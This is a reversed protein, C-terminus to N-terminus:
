NVIETEIENSIQKDIFKQGFIWVLLLILISIGVIFLIVKRGDM